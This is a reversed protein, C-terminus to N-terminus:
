IKYHHHWQVTEKKFAKSSITNRNFGTFQYTTNQTHQTVKQILSVDEKTIKIKSSKTQDIFLRPSAKAGKKKEFYFHRQKEQQQM